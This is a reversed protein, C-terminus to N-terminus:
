FPLESTDSSNTQEQQRKSDLKRELSEIFKVLSAINNFILLSEDYNLIHNDHAFSQNNRVDNFAELVSISFKLIRESMTSEILGESKLHKVYEGFISQLPKSSDALISYKDCLERIYRVIFTHLRDLAVEPQDNKLLEKIQDALVWFDKEDVNPEIADIHTSVSETKLREAIKNCDELLQDENPIPEINDLKKQIEWYEILAFILKGVTYNREKEWLVRFLKAKSDGNISYEPAHIDLKTHLFVFDALTRHSFDLVHGSEMRFYRNLIRKDIHSLDAM